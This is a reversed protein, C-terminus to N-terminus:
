KFWEPTAHTLFWPFDYGIFLLATAAALAMGVRRDRPLALLYHCCLVYIPGLVPFLYRGQLTIGTVGYYTYANYNVKYLLVAAYFSAIVALFPPLWGSEGPRWRLAFGAAALAMILYVPIMYKPPKYMGIHGKIGLISGTMDQVWQKVYQWPTLWLSPNAKLNEYNMLLFFTDSKDGPHRIAGTMQLAELYSIKGETYLSFIRERAGIRYEMSSEPSVVQAMTPALTGYRLHNGAYLQLNLALAALVLLAPAMARAGGKLYDALAAPLLPLKKWEHILLLLDLVFALPLFTSKTLAGALQCLLAAALLGGERQKFFALLYYVSMAGLLNTLNDYSVSASLLTFMSTNTLVIVLLLDALRNRTVLRLTRRIFFVTALAIPINMLRLFVLDSLGFFNLHLLKGMVWYYLWPANTVLGFQYSEPTNRPFLLVKSFIQCVGAHTVEDPPVFSSINFAFYVLRLAFYTLFFVVSWKFWPAAIVEDEGQAGVSPQQQYQTQMEPDKM